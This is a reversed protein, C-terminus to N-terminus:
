KEEADLDEFEADQIDGGAVRRPRPPPPPTRRPGSDSSAGLRVSRAVMLVLRGILLVLLLRWLFSLLGLM